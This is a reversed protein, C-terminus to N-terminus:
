LDIDEFFENITVGYYDCLREITTININTRAAEINGINLGTDQTVKKQTFGTKRRLIRFKSGILLLADNLRKENLM